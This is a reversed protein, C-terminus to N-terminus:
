GAHELIPALQLRVHPRRHQGGSHSTKLAVGRGRSGRAYGLSDGGSGAHSLLVEAAFRAAQADLEPRPSALGELRRPSGRGNRMTLVVAQRCARSSPLTTGLEHNTWSGRM